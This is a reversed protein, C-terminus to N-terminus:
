HIRARLHGDSSSFHTKADSYLRARPASSRRNSGVPGQPDFMTEFHTDVIAAVHRHFGRGTRQIEPQRIAIAALRADWPSCM